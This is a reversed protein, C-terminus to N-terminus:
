THVWQCIFEYAARLAMAEGGEPRGPSTTLNYAMLDIHIWPVDPNIFQELFLAALIAGGFGSKGTSSLDAFPTKLQKAYPKHLPLPWVPDQVTTGALVFQSSLDSRNCFLAPLDTGLAVRAAGTLTAFDIILDPNNHSAEDLADALILRGEADTNGIEVSLGKRTRIIDLPHMAKGDIGNEVAPIYLDLEVPLKMALILQALALAHAAGGMDKKMLLMNNSPKLDLGGTDFCVGKGVLALKKISQPPRHHLHIYCPEAAAAKGVTYVSPYEQELQPGKVIRIEAQHLSALKQSLVALTDPTFDVAPVNIWDRIHTIAEIHANVWPQIANAPWVLQKSASRTAVGKKYRNFEYFSLGWALCAHNAHFSDLSAELCYAGPPLKNALAAYHWFSDDEGWIVKELGGSLSPILALTQPEGIFGTASLWCKTFENQKTLWDAFSKSTVCHIPIATPHSSTFFLNM